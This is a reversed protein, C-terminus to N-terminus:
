VPSRPCTRMAAVVANARERYGEPTAHVGYAVLWGPHARVMGAWDVLRLNRNRVAAAHLADNFSEYADGDRHITAWLVCRREGVIGLVDAIAATFAGAASEPDNTGLSIVVYRGLTAAQSGLRDVGTATPRGVVDDTGVDWGRLEQELYPEVGVNLSDGVLTVTGQELTRHSGHVIHLPATITDVVVGAVVVAAAAIVVIRLRM